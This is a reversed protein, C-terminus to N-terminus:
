RRCAAVGPGPEEEDAGAIATAIADLAPEHLDQSVSIELRGRREDWDLAFFPCCAREVAVLEEVLLRDVQDCLVVVLRRGDREILRAGSGLRRYRRLQARLDAQDLSCAMPLTEV